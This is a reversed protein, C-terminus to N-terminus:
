ETSMKIHFGYAKQLLQQGPNRETVERLVMKFKRTWHYLSSPKRGTAEQNQKGGGSKDRQQRQTTWNQVAQERDGCSRGSSPDLCGWCRGPDRAGVWTCIDWPADTPVEQPWLHGWQRGERNGDEHSSVEWPRTTWTGVWKGQPMRLPLKDGITKSKPIEHNQM